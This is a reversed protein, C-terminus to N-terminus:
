SRPRGDPLRRAAEWAPVQSPFAWRSPRSPCQGASRRRTRTSTYRAHAVLPLDAETTVGGPAAFIAETAQGEGPELVGRVAKALTEEVTAAAALVPSFLLLALVAGSGWRCRSPARKRAPSM